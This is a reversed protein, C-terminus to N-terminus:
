ASAPASMIRMCEFDFVAASTSSNMRRHSRGVGTTTTGVRYGETVKSSSSPAPTFITIQAL